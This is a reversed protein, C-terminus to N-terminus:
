LLMEAGFAGAAYPYWAATEGVARVSTLPVTAAFAEDAGTCLLRLSSKEPPALLAVALPWRDDIAGFPLARLNHWARLPRLRYSPRYWNPPVGEV